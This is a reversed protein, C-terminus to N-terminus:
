TSDLTVITFPQIHSKYNSHILELQFLIGVCVANRSEHPDSIMSGQQDEVTSGYFMPLPGLKNSVYSLLPFSM